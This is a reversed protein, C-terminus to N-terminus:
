KGVAKVGGAAHFAQEWGRIKEAPGDLEDLTCQQLAWVKDSVRQRRTSWDVDQM